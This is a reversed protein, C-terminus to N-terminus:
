RMPEGSEGMIRRIFHGTLTFAMEKQSDLLIVHGSEQLIHKEKQLNPLRQYTSLAYLNSITHDNSGLVLLVPRKVSKIKMKVIQQLLFLQVAAKLPIVNYGQWPMSEDTNAKWIYNKFPWVFLTKWLGPTKLAPSYLLLGAIEPHREALYLALLGGMSEGGVFVAKCNQTMEFLATEATQVWSRWTARNMDEPNTGHGPLLPGAVSFGQGRLYEALGRVEVTTATFGHFLLVGVDGNKWFFSTGDLEPHQYIPPTSM